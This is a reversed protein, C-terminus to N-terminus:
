GRLCPVESRNRDRPVSALAWSLEPAVSSVVSSCYMGPHTKGDLILGLAGFHRREVQKDTVFGKFFHAWCWLACVRMAWLCKPVDTLDLFYIYLTEYIRM